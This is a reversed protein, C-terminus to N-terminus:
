RELKIMSRFDLATLFFVLWPHTMPLLHFTLILYFLNSWSSLRLLSDLFILLSILVKLHPILSIILMSIHFSITFTFTINIITQINWAQFPLTPSIFHLNGNKCCTYNHYSLYISILALSVSTLYFPHFIVFFSIFLLIPLSHVYRDFDYVAFVLTKTTIEAYPVKKM